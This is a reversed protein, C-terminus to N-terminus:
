YSSLKYALNGVIWPWDGGGKEQERGVKGGWFISLLDHAFKVKWKVLLM